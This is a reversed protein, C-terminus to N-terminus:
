TSVEHETRLYFEVQKTPSVALQLRRGGNDQPNKGLFVQHKKEPRVVLMVSQIRPDVTLQYFAVDDACHTVLFAVVSPERYSQNPLVLLPMLESYWQTSERYLRTLDREHQKQPLSQGRRWRGLTTASVPLLQGLDNDTWETDQLWKLAKQIVTM